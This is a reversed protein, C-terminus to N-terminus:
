TLKQIIAQKRFKLGPTRQGCAQASRNRSIVKMHSHIHTYTHTYVKSAM